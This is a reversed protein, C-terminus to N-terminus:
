RKRSVTKELGAVVEVHGTFLFQDAPEVFTIRYGGEQLIALDRALTVPNCSVAAIRRVQSRALEKAQAEAGARPPDFVVADFPKLEQVTMPRRFLDRKEHTVPKLGPTRRYARDLAALSPADNEVAHVAAKTALRLSFTGCGSFLDAVRKVKGLHAAVRQALHEEIESAAQLFGGPPPNVTTGGFDIQPPQKEILIETNFSVRAIEPLKRAVAAIRLRAAEDVQFPADVAVDLGSLSATVLFRFAEKRLACAFAIQRLAPLADTIRTSAVPCEAIEVIEHSEAKNFGLIVGDGDRRATLALRRRSALPACVLPEVPVDLGRAHLADVVLDRKWARYATTEMHQLVCGGCGANDGDPGFHRCVPDTRLPSAKAISLITGKGGTVAAGVTDGPLGYPVHVPGAPTMAVGDGKSGLKEITLTVTSM